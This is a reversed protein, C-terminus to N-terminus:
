YYNSSFFFLLVVVCDPSESIDHNKGLILTWTTQATEVADFDMEDLGMEHNL